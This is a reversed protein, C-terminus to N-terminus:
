HKGNTMSCTVNHVLQHTHILYHLAHVDGGIIFPASNTRIHTCMSSVCLLINPWTMQGIFLPHASTPVFVDISLLFDLLVVVMVEINTNWTDDVVMNTYNQSITCMM